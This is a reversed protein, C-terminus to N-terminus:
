KKDSDDVIDDDDMENSSDDSGDDDKVVIGFVVLIGAFAMICDELVQNEISFGFARGLANILVLLAGCFGVWFSYKKMRKFINKM